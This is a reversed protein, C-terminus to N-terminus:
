PSKRAFSSCLNMLINQFRQTMRELKRPLLSAVTTRYVPLMNLTVAIRLLWHTYQRCLPISNSGNMEIKKIQRTQLLNTFISVPTYTIKNVTAYKMVDILVAEM